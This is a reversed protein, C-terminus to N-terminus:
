ISSSWWKSCESVIPGTPVVRVQGGLARSVIQHGWCTGLMKTKPYGRVTIRADDLVDLVWPKSGTNLEIADPSYISTFVPVLFHAIFLRKQHGNLYPRDAKM